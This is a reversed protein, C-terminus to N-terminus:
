VGGWLGALGARQADSSGQQMGGGGGAGCRRRRAIAAALSRQLFALDAEGGLADQLPM